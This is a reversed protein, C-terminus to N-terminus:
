INPKFVCHIKILIEPHPIEITHVNLIEFDREKINPDSIGGECVLILYKFINRKHSCIFYQFILMSM